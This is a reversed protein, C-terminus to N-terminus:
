GINMTIGHDGDGIKRDLECLEDKQQEFLETLNLIYSKFSQSTLVM